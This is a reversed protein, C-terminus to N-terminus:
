ALHEPLRIPVDVTDGDSRGVQLVLTADVPFSWGWVLATGAGDDLLVNARNLPATPLGDVLLRFADHGVITGGCTGQQAVVEVGVRLWREGEPARKSRNPELADGLHDAGADLDVEAGTVEFTGVANDCGGAFSATGSGEVTLALPYGDDIPPGSLALRAPVRGPESVVLSGDDVTADEPLPFAVHFSTAVGPEPRAVSTFAVDEGVVPTGDSLELTFREVEFADGPDNLEPELVLEAYAHTAEGPEPEPDLWTAPTANSVALRVVTVAVNAYVVTRPLDLDVETTVVQPTPSPTPTPTPSAEPSAEPPAEPSPTPVGAADEPTEDGSCAVLMVALTLGLAFARKRSTTGAM